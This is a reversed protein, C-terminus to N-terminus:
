AACRPVVYPGEPIVAVARDGSAGVSRRVAEDVSAVRAVGTLAQDAPRLASYLQVRAARQAKLQMESEWEDVDAFRKGRLSNLFREAGEDLLRRQAARYANSGIGEACEAAVILTADPALIDLPTVMGKVAQYYTQDLPYGAASAVVTRFRRPAPVTLYEAAFAVAQAHSAAIEGFNVFSLRREEDLVTNVAYAEGLMRAIRMLEEHLPNGDLVGAAARADELLAASHLARITQGHAVGPAVVKRGGSYGAMFHPEVLGTALRLDARVFRRDLRVPTGRPTDGLAVHASDDEAEHNVVAVTGRVWPDGIVADLEAGQNPRHLGTAVLVTIDAKPVGAALLTEIIPRLLLGNPVPRTVDCVLICASRRGAAIEALSACGVGSALAARAAQRPDAALPMPPKALVTVDVDDGVTVPLRGKGYLLEVIM